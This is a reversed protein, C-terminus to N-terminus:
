EEALRESQSDLGDSLNILESLAVSQREMAALQELYLARQQQSKAAFDVSSVFANMEEVQGRLQTFQENLNM